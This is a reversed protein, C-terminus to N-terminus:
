RSSVLHRLKLTALAIVESLLIGELHGLVGCGSADLSGQIEEVRFLSDKFVWRAM